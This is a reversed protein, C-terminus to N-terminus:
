LKNVSSVLQQAFQYPYRRMVKMPDIPRKGKKVSFHLHPSTCYGTCGVQGILDGTGVSKGVRLGEQIVNLHLYATSLGNPHRIVVHNGAARDKGIKEIYGKYASFVESGVPLEFDVGNHPKSRGRIPHMRHNSFVSSIHIYNVPAYLERNDAFAPTTPDVFVGGKAIPIFKRQEVQGKVELNTELVEGYKVFQEGLFKKELKMWFGAGRSLDKRPNIDFLYADLFRFAVWDNNVISLISPLIGGLVKGRLSVVETRYKELIRKATASGDPSKFLYYSYDSLQEFFKIGRTKEKQDNVVLYPEDALIRFNKPLPNQRWINKVDEDNFGNRKL